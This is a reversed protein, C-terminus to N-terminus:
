NHARGRLARGAGGELRWGGVGAGERAEQFARSGLERTRHAAVQPVYERCHLFTRRLIGVAQARKPFSTHMGTFHCGRRLSLVLPGLWRRSWPPTPRLTARPGAPDGWGARPWRVIGPTRRGPLSGSPRLGAAKKRPLRRPQGGVGGIKEQRAVSGFGRQAPREGGCRVVSPRGLTAELISAGSARLRRRTMGRMAVGGGGALGTAGM